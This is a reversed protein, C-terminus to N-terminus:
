VERHGQLGQRGDRHARLHVRIRRGEEAEGRPDPERRQRDDPHGQLRRRGPRGEAVLPHGRHLEDQHRLRLWLDLLFIFNM